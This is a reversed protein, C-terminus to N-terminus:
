GAKNNAERSDHVLQGTDDQKYVKDSRFQPESLM